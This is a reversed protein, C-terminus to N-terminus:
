QEAENCHGAPRRETREVIRKMLKIAEIGVGGTISFVVPTFTSLMFHNLRAGSVSKAKVLDSALSCDRSMM